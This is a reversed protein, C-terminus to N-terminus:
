LKATIRRVYQQAVDSQAFNQPHKEQGSRVKPIGDRVLCVWPTHRRWEESWEAPHEGFGFEYVSDPVIVVRDALGERSFVGLTIMFARYAHHQSTILLMTAWTEERFRVAAQNAQGHTYISQPSSDTIIRGAAIGHGVMEAKLHEANMQGDLESAMLSDPGVIFVPINPYERARRIAATALRRGDGTYVVIVDPQLRMSRIKDPWMCYAMVEAGADRPDPDKNIDPGIPM